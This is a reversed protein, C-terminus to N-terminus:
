GVSALLPGAVSGGEQPSVGDVTPGPPTQAGTQCGQGAQYALFVKLTERTPMRVSQVLPVSIFDKTLPWLPPESTLLM